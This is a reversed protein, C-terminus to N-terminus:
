EVKMNVPLGDPQLQEIMSSVSNDFNRFIQPIYFENRGPAHHEDFAESIRGRIETTLNCQPTCGEAAYVMRRGFSPHGFAFSMDALSLAQGADKLRVCIQIGDATVRQRAAYVAIVNCSYGEAELRDIMAAIIVVRMLALNAQIGEWMVTEVFLTIIRRKPLKARKTMHNPMGALMRGVSVSGGAVSRIRRKNVPPLTFLQKMLGLGDIWGNKAISVAHDLSKTGTYEETTTWGVDCLGGQGNRPRQLGEVHEAFKLLSSFGFYAIPDQDKFYNYYTMDDGIKVPTTSPPNYPQPAPRAIPTPRTEQIVLGPLARLKDVLVPSIGYGVWAQASADWQCRAAKLVERHDFTRGTIIIM